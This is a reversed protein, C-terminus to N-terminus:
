KCLYTTGRIGLSKPSGHHWDAQKQIEEVAPQSKTKRLKNLCKKTPWNNELKRQTNVTMEEINEM